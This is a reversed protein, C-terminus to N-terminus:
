HYFYYQESGPILLKLAEGRDNALTFDEVYDIEAARGQMVACVLLLAVLKPLHKM